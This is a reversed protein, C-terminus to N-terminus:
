ISKCLAAKRQLTFTCFAGLVIRRCEINRGECCIAVKVQNKKRRTYLLVGIVAVAAIIVNWGHLFVLLIRMAEIFFQTIDRWKQSAL